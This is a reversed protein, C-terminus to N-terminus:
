KSETPDQRQTKQLKGGPANRGGQGSRGADRDRKNQCGKNHGSSGDRSSQHHHQQSLSSLNFGGGSGDFGDDYDDVDTGACGFGKRLRHTANLNRMQANTMGVGMATTILDEM